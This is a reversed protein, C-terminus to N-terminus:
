LLCEGQSSAVFQNSPHKCNYVFLACANGFMLHTGATSTACVPKYEMTCMEPCNAASASDERILAPDLPLASVSSIALAVVVISKFFM